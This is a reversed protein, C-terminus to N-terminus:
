ALGDVKGSLWWSLWKSFGEECGSNYKQHILKLKERDGVLDSNNKVWCAKTEMAEALALMMGSLNNFVIKEIYPEETNTWFMALPPFQLNETEWRNLDLVMAYEDRKFMFVCNYDRASEEPEIFFGGVLPTLSAGFFDEEAYLTKGYHTGNRWQYLEYFEEPLQLSIVKNEIEQRNLGPQLTEYGQPHQAQLWIAIRNLAAAIAEM